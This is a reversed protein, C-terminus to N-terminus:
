QRLREVIARALDAGIGPVTAIEEAGARTLGRLGGFAKLLASRRKSGIGPIEDLVSAERAKQRRARHGVLAFRHAEDRIQQLLHSAPSTPGPFLAPGDSHLYLEEHGAKREPGKAMGLLRMQGLGLDAVLQEAVRLQGRGGDVILLAPQVGEGDVLRKLRRELAQRMGAYDDGPTIGSLNYRRYEAKRAGKDDFVVQSAVPLEGMTHSVDFCEIRQPPTALSLLDALARLRAAYQTADVRRVEIAQRASELALEVVRAAEGRHAWKLEVRHGASAALFAELDAAADPPHSLWLAPPPPQEAYYQSIFDALLESALTDPPLKPFLSRQGVNLGQRFYVVQVVCLDAEIVAVILDRDGEGSAVFQRAKVQQLVRIQDRLKAAREFALAQAAQEMAASLEALVQDSRGALFLEALRVDNAYDAASILGVCPATCRGIQHQLCPRSRHAFVSDECNRLRFLKHLLNLSARVAWASPFPGFYRAQPNRGGRHFALRPYPHALDLMLWPYSKDDRLLVNYRPQQAKVIQNELLLAEAETRTSSFEFAAIQAVMASIRRSSQRTFYSGVRARLNRAKGVYLLTRNADYFQYVGPGRPLSRALRRGDFGPETVGATGM